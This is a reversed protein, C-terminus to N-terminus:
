NWYCRKTMDSLKYRQYPEQDCARNSNLFMFSVYKTLGTWIITNAGAFILSGIQFECESRSSSLFWIYLKTIFVILDVFFFRINSFLHFITCTCFLYNIFHFSQVFSLLCRLVYFLNLRILFLNIRVNFPSLTSDKCRHQERVLELAKEALMAM